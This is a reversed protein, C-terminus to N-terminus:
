RTPPLSQPVMATISAAPRRLSETLALSSCTAWSSASTPCLSPSRLAKKKAWIAYIETAEPMMHVLSMGLFLGASFCNLFSLANESKQCAPWIKPIIGLCVCLIMMFLMLIKFSDVSLGEDEEKSGHNHGAHPDVDAM